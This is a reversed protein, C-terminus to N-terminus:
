NEKISPSRAEKLNFGKLILKKKLKKNLIKKKAFKRWYFFASRTLIWYDKLSNKKICDLRLDDNSSKAL